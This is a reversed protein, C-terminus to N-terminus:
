ASREIREQRPSITYNWQPCVAHKKVNLQRMEEDSVKKGKQYTADVRHAEVSLGTKTRTGRICALLTGLTRLPKAAWNISIFSFLRHEIPNWKSCGTPYHCVTVTVGFRDALQEQLKQKWVRSRCSNSGGSDALILLEDAGAYRQMGESEWWGVIVDVAFEPTDASTSVYVSGRNERVEYIGYPVARALADSPFDYVNVEEGQKGWSRGANKFNGVLEKKKTDVSIIPAGAEEFVRKQEEIYVFQTDRDAHNSGEYRKVNGLLSYGLEERLLKGVTPPSAWHGVEGLRRSYEELTGRVWKRESMPDGATEGSAIQELVAIIQPDKKGWRHDVM